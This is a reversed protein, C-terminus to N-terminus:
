LDKVIKEIEQGLDDLEKAVRQAVKKASGSPDKSATEAHAALRKALLTASEALDHAARRTDQVLQDVSSSASPHAARPVAAGCAACQVRGAPLEQGCNQCYM